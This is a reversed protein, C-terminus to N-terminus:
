DELMLSKIIRIKDSYHDSKNKDGMTEYFSKDVIANILEEILNIEKTKM